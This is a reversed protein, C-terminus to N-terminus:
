FIKKVAWKIGEYTGIIAGTFIALATLSGARESTSAFDNFMISFNVVNSEIFVFGANKNYVLGFPSTLGNLFNSFSNKEAKKLVDDFSESNKNKNEVGGSINELDISNLVQIKTNM